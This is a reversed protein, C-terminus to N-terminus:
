CSIFLTVYNFRVESLAFSSMFLPKIIFRLMNRSMDYQPNSLIALEMTTNQNIQGNVQSAILVSNPNVDQYSGTGGNWSKIFNQTPFIGRLRYPRTSIYTIYPSAGYLTLVYYGPKDPIQQLLASDAQQIFFLNINSAPPESNPDTSAALSIESAFTLALFFSFIFFSQLLRKLKM